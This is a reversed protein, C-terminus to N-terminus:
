SSVLAASLQRRESARAERRHIWAKGLALAPEEILRQSLKACLATGVVVSAFWLPFRFIGFPSHEGVHLFWLPVRLWTAVMGHLLYIAYCREGVWRMFRSDLLRLWATTPHFASLFVVPVTLIYPLSRYLPNLVLISIVAVDFWTVKWRGGIKKVWPRLLSKKELLYIAIGMIFFPWHVLPMHWIFAFPDPVGLGAAKSLWLQGGVFTVIFALVLKRRDQFFIFFLPLLVYFTEEVFLSWAVPIPIFEVKYSLFGFAFTAQAAIVAPRMRLFLATVLVVAWWLPIIRSVRRIYFNTRSHVERTTSLDLTRYVLYGSVLFFFDMSWLGNTRVADTVEPSLGFRPMGMSHILVVWLTFFARMLDIGTNRGREM